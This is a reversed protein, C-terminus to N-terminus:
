FGGGAGGGGGGGGGFGGGGFGGGGFGGGGFGGGYTLFGDKRKSVPLNHWFFFRSVSVITYIIFFLAAVGVQSFVFAAIICFFIAFVLGPLFPLALALVFLFMAINIGAGDSKNSSASVSEINLGDLSGLTLNADKAIISSVAAVGYYLGKGYEGNKFYPVMYSRGLQGCLGDPLIGEVGYGTEIRWRREKVALLILVGNDKGKKGPKWSDFVIRAYSKEDYPAISNVSVVIIEASTKQELEEVLKAIKDYYERSVVGAFDNVWSTPKPIDSAYFPQTLFIVVLILLLIYRKM